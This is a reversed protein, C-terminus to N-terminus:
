RGRRQMMRIMKGRMMPRTSALREPLIEAYHALCLEAQEATIRGTAVLEDLMAKRQEVSAAVFADLKDGLIDALTKEAELELRVASVEMGLWDAVRSVLSGMARGLGFGEGSKVGPTAALAGGALALTLLLAVASVMLKRRM